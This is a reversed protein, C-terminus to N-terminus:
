IRGRVTRQQHVHDRHHRDPQRQRAPRQVPDRLQRRQGHGSANVVCSDFIPFVDAGVRRTLTYGSGGSILTINTVDGRMSVAATATAQTGSNAAWAGGLIHVTPPLTYGSGGQTLTLGTVVGSGDVAATAVAGAGYGEFRVEPIGTFGARFQNTMFLTRLAGHEFNDGVLYGQANSNLSWLYQNAGFLVNQVDNERAFTNWRENANAIGAKLGPTLYVSACLGAQNLYDDNALQPISAFMNMGAESCIQVQDQFPAAGGGWSYTLTETGGITVAGSLTTPSHFVTNGNAVVQVLLTVDDVVCVYNNSDGTNWSGGATTGLDAGNINQFIKNIIMGTVMGHPAPAVRSSDTTVVEIVTNWVNVTPFAAVALALNGMSVPGISLIPLVVFISDDAYSLETPQHQDTWHVFNSNLVQTIHVTRLYGGPFNGILRERFRPHTLHFDTPDTLDDLLSLNQFIDTTGGNSKCSFTVDQRFRPYGDSAIAQTFVLPASPTGGPGMQGNTNVPGYSSNTPITGHTVSFNGSPNGSPSPVTFRAIFPSQLGPRGWFDHGNGPYGRDRDGIFNQIEFTANAIISTLQGDSDVQSVGWNQAQKTQNLYTSTDNNQSLYSLNYGLKMRAPKSWDIPTWTGNRGNTAHTATITTPPITGAPTSISNDVLNLQVVDTPQAFPKSELIAVVGNGYLTGSGAGNTLTVTGSTAAPIFTLLKTLRYLYWVEDPNDPNVNQNDTATWTSTGDTLSYHAATTPTGNVGWTNGDYIDHWPVYLDYTRGPILQAPLDYTITATPSSSFNLTGSSGNPFLIGNVVQLATSFNLYLATQTTTSSWSAGAGGYSSGTEGDAVGIRQNNEQGSTWCYTEGNVGTFAGIWDDMPVVVQGGGPNIVCTCGTFDIATIPQLVPPTAITEIHFKLVSGHPALTADLVQVTPNGITIKASIPVVLGDNTINFFVDGPSVGSPITLNASASGGSPPIVITSPSLSYGSTLSPTFTVNSGAAWTGVNATITLKGLGPSHALASHAFSASAGYTPNLTPGTVDSAGTITGTLFSRFGTVPSSGTWALCDKNAATQIVEAPYGNSLNTIDNFTGSYNFITGGFTGAGDDRIWLGFDALSLGVLANSTSSAGLVLPSSVNYPQSVIANDNIKTWVGGGVGYANADITLIASRFNTNVDCDIELSHWDGDGDFSHFPDSLTQWAQYSGGENMVGFALWNGSGTGFIGGPGGTNTYVLWICSGGTFTGDGQYLITAFTGPSLTTSGSDFKLMAHIGIMQADLLTSQPTIAVSDTASGFHLAHTTM